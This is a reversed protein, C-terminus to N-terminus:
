GSSPTRWWGRSLRLAQDSSRRPANQAGVNCYPPLFHFRLFSRLSKKICHIPLLEKLVRKNVEEKRKAAQSGEGWGPHRSFARNSRKKQGPGTTLVQHRKKAVCVWLLHEQHEQM